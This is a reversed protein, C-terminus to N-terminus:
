KVCVFKARKTADKLVALSVIGSTLLGNTSDSLISNKEFAIWDNDNLYHWKVAQILKDPNASGEAVQFLISLTQPPVLDKIGIYLNGENDFQPLMFNSFRKTDAEKVGFADVYYFKEIRKKYDTKSVNKLEYEVSSTYQLSLDQISPTYPPNPM